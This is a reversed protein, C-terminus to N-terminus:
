KTRTEWIWSHNGSCCRVFCGEYFLLDFHWVSWVRRRKSRRGSGFLHDDVILCDLEFKAKCALDKSRRTSRMAWKAIITYLSEVMVTRPNSITNSLSVIAVEVHENHRKSEQTNEYKCTDDSMEHKQRSFSVEKISDFLSGSRQDFKDNAEERNPWYETQCSEMRIKHTRILCCIFVDFSGKRWFPWCCSRSCGFVGKRCSRDKWITTENQASWGRWPIVWFRM